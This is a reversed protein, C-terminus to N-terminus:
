KKQVHLEVLDLQNLTNIHWGVFEPRFLMAFHIPGTPILWNQAMLYSVAEDCVDRKKAATRAAALKELLKEFNADAIRLYNETSRSSFIELASLCTPRDPTSGKRFLDPPNAAIESLFVKNDKASMQITINLNQKWQSQVWEMARRHDEGGQVSYSLKLAEPVKAVKKLAAQAKTLDFKYCLEKKTWSKPIGPCGPVGESSFIKQLEPYNLSATMAERLAPVNKLRPGFGIYDFRTVPIWFFDARTKYKPIYLTPLRRLFSLAGQEYQQLALSDEAIFLVEVQPRPFASVLPYYANSELTIRDGAQWSKIKYPGSTVLTSATAQSFARNKIPALLYNALDYEFEPDKETLEFRVTRPDPATVGLPGAKTPDQYLAKANKIKFLLDARPAAVKPDLIRRYSAIFDASTLPSGDSWKLDKKLRCVLIKEGVRKCSEALDPVLGKDDRFSFFNRFLNQLLYSGGSSNQVHPDLDAPEKSVHMRFVPPPSKESEAAGAM